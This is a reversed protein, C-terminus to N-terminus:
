VTPLEYDKFRERLQAKSIKGTATHPLDEAFVVDDPLWWKAVKDALFGLIDEKSPSAGPKPVIVLLPRELWKPHPRAIAAAEAVDPQAMVANELEISSIWEGGSKILDKTRDTIQLYGQPDITAVDGTRFWGEADFAAESATEDGYYGGIVYPGRVLLEGSAEGDHPLPQGADDVIKLEVGFPPRGAKAKIAYREEESMAEMEPTMSCVAAVPSTETMGWGQIFEVGYNEQMTRILAMPPAAGGCVMRKLGDLRKGSRGLYELLGLWITPVGATTTVGEDEILGHLSEGDYGPGPFVLKAGVMPCSYPAGWACVHFMPVVVLFSDRSSAWNGDTGALCCLAHLLTSRHSYLAGKPHGTTGSTYCLMAATNDDFETWEFSEPQEDLLEEYCHVKDLGTEPMHARDTMVVTAELSDLQPALAEVLPVFTLDAFLFRDQAHNIIYALQDPFLRPNITHCVAGIGSVAYYLELHRYGNWALTGVRDGPKVGLAVLANALKQMRRYSDRYTYRHIPGEVTRSVIERDGHYAAAYEMIPAILLPRDMMM